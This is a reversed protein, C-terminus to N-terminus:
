DCIIASGDSRVQPLLHEYRQDTLTRLFCELGELETETMAQQGLLDHDITEPFATNAWPDGTEPNIPSRSGDSSGRHNYFDLVTKLDKFVGNHMYPGTVAVNRLTPTKFKGKLAEDEIEPQGAIGIDGHEVVSTNLGLALNAQLMAQNEPVGLNFYRYNSFTQRPDRQATTIDQNMHCNVCSSNEQSFFVAKGTLEQFSLSVEGQLYRDWKSDFSAFEDTRQYDAIVETMAQYAEQSDSLIQQNYFRSFAEVYKPNDAITAVVDAKEANAMEVPNLPPGGAQDALTHARGDHFFGGMYGREEDLWVFEPVEDIYTLTPANRTGISQGDAGLSVGLSQASNNRTDVFAQESNHCSACSQEGNFSLNPDHFLAKGLAERTAFQAMAPPESTAESGSDEILDDTDSQSGSQNGSGDGCGVLGSAMVLGLTMAQVSRRLLSQPCRHPLCLFLNFHLTM